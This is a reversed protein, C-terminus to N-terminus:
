FIPQCLCSLDLALLHKPRTRLPLVYTLSLSLSLSLRFIWRVRYIPAPDQSPVSGSAYSRRLQNFLCM